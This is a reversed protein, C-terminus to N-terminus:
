LDIFKRNTPNSNTSPWRLLEQFQIHLSSKKLQAKVFTILM